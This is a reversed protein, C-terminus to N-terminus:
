MSLKQTPTETSPEVTQEQPTHWIDKEPEIHPYLFHLVEPFNATSSQDLIRSGVYRIDLLEFVNGVEAFNYVDKAPYNGLDNKLEDYLQGYSFM